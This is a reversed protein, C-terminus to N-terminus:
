PRVLLISTMLMSILRLMRLLFGSKGWRTEECFELGTYCLGIDIRIVLLGPLAIKKYIGADEKLCFWEKIKPIRWHMIKWSSSTQTSSIGCNKLAKLTIRNLMSFWNSLKVSVIYMESRETELHFLTYNYTLIRWSRVHLKITAALFKHDTALFEVCWFLM